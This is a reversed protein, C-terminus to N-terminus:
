NLHLDIPKAWGNWTTRDKSLKKLGQILVEFANEEDFGESCAQLMLQNFQECLQEEGLDKLWDRVSLLGSQKLSITQEPHDLWRYLM